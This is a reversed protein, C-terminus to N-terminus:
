RLFICSYSSYYLFFNSLASILVITNIILIKKLPTKNQRFKWISYFNFLVALVILLYLLFIIMSIIEQSKLYLIDRAIQNSCEIQNACCMEWEEDQNFMAYDFTAVESSFNM